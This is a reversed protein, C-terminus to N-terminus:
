GGRGATIWSAGRCHVSDCKKGLRVAFAKRTGPEEGATKAFATWSQFLPTAMESKFENGPEFDCEEALWQTFIDQEEFYKNTAETIVEAPLLGNKQWDLCGDIMWRLIGPWEARLKDKLDPDPIPPTFEFPIDFDTAMDVEKTM